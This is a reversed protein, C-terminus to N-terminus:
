PCAHNRSWSPVTIRHDSQPVGQEVEALLLAAPRLAAPVEAHIAHRVASLLAQDAESDLPKQLPPGGRTVFAAVLAVTALAPAWASRWRPGLPRHEELRRTIKARQAQFFAEPREAEAHIRAALGVLSARLRVSEERCAACSLLHGLGESVLRGDVHATMESDSLHGRM